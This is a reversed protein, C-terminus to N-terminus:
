SGAAKHRALPELPAPVDVRRTSSSLEARGERDLQRTADSGLSLLALGASAPPSNVEEGRPLKHAPANADYFIAQLEELGEIM